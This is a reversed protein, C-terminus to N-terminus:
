AQAPQPHRGSDADDCRLFSLLDRVGAFGLGLVRPNKAEYILEYLWGPRFEEPLHCWYPSPEALGDDSVSAFRWQDAPISVRPDREYERFTFTCAVTDTSVTEYSDTYHNGSLPLATVGPEDVMFETRVAGTIPAGDQSAVPLRMTLRGAGPSIDGQWGSWVVTYGRRMLFGNGAHERACPQNDHVADNFFQLCRVNGRNNVDYLIRRNGREVDAPKLMYFNASYEVLGDANRPAHELDVM